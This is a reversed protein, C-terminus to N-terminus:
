YNYTYCDCLLFRFNEQTSCAHANEIRTYNLLDVFLGPHGLDWDCVKLDVAIRGSM